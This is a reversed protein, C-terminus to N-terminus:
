EKKGNKDLKDKAAKPNSELKDLHTSLSKSAKELAAIQSTHSGDPKIYNDALHCALVASILPHEYFHHELYPVTGDCWTGELHGV